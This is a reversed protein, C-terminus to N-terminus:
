AQRPSAQRRADPRRRARSARLNAVNGCTKVDHWVGSSNKSRDYFASGCDSNRCRKLRRWTGNQQSLLVEAMVASSLWRWGRGMPELRVNGADDFALTAAGSLKPRMSSTPDLLSDLLARLDRLRSADNDSLAPPHFSSGSELAWAEVADGAWRHAQAGDALLDAGHGTIARTNVLDQVLALGGPAARLGYRETATWSSMLSYDNVIDAVDLLGSM